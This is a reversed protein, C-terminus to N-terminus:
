EEFRKTYTDVLTVIYQVQSARVLLDKEFSNMILAQKVTDLVLPLAYNKAVEDELQAIYPNICAKKM